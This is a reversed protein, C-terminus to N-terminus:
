VGKVKGDKSWIIGGIYCGGLGGFVLMEYM